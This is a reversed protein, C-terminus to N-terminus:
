WECVCVCMCVCVEEEEHNIAARGSGEAFTGPDHAWWQHRTCACHCQRLEGREGVGVREGGQRYQAKEEGEQGM